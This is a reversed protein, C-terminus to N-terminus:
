HGRGLALILRVKLRLAANDAALAASRQGAQELQARLAAAEGRQAQQAAQAQAAAGEAAQLM